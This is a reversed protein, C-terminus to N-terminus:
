EIRNIHRSNVKWESAGLNKMEIGNSHKIDENKDEDPDTSYGELKTGTVKASAHRHPKGL